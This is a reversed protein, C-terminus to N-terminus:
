DCQWGCRESQRRTQRQALMNRTHMKQTSLTSSEPNFNKPLLSRASVPASLRNISATSIEHLMAGPYTGTFGPGECNTASNRRSLAGDRCHFANRRAHPPFASPTEQVQIPLECVSGSCHVPGEEARGNMKVLQRSKKSFRKLGLIQIRFHNTKHFRFSGM